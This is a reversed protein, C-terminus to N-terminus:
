GVVVLCHGQAQALRVVDAVLMTVDGGRAQNFNPDIFGFTPRPKQELRRTAPILSLAPITNIFEPWSSKGQGPTEASHALQASM